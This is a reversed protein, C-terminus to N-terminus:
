NPKTTIELTVSECSVANVITVLKVYYTTNASLGAITDTLTTVVPNATWTLSSPLRYQVQYSTVSPVAAWKFSITTQQIKKSYFGVAGKGTSSPYNCAPYVMLLVLKQVIDNFSMGKAIGANVIADGTYSLCKGDFAESCQDDLDCEPVSQADPNKSLIVNDGCGCDNDCGCLKKM